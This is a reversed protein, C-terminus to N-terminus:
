CMSLAQDMHSEALSRSHPQTKRRIIEVMLTQELTEFEESM